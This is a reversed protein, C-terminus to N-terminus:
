PSPAPTKGKGTKKRMFCAWENTSNVKTELCGSTGHASAQAPKKTSFRRSTANSQINLSKASKMRAHPVVCRKLMMANQYGIYRSSPTTFASVPPTESTVATASHGRIGRASASGLGPSKLLLRSGPVAALLQRGALAAPDRMRRRRQWLLITFCRRGCEVFRPKRSNSISKGFARLTCGTKAIVADLHMRRM